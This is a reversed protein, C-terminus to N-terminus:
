PHIESSVIEKHVSMGRADDPILHNAHLYRRDNGSVRVGTDMEGERGQHKKVRVPQYLDFSRGRLHPGNTFFKSAVQKKEVHRQLSPKM